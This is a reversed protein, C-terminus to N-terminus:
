TGPPPPNYGPPNPLWNITWGKTNQLYDLDGVLGGNNSASLFSPVYISGSDACNMFVHNGFASNGISWPNNLNPLYVYKLNGCDSFAYSYILTAKEFSASIMSGCYQFASNEITDVKPFNIKTFGNQYLFAGQEIYQLNPFNLSKLSSTFVMYSNWHFADNEIYNVGPFSATALSYAYGDNSRFAEAGIRYCYGGDEYSKLSSTFDDSYFASNDIKYYQDISATINAGNEAYSLFTAPVSSEGSDALSKSELTEQTLYAAPGKISIGKDPIYNLNWGRNELYQLDGDLGGYNNYTYYIPFEITPDVTNSSSIANFFVGQNSPSGGLANSGSLSPLSIIPYPNSSDSGFNEFAGVSVTKASAFSASSLLSCSSFAYSGISTALDLIVTDLNTANKFANTSIIECKGRDEYKTINTNDQFASSSITYEISSSVIIDSGTIEFLNISSSLLKQSLQSQDISGSIGSIKFGDTINYTVNWGKGILYQLNADVGGANNTKYAIPVRIKGNNATNNTTFVVHSTPDGGLASSGSLGRLDIEKLAPTWDILNNDVYPLVPVELKVLYNQYQIASPGYSTLSPFSGTTLGANFSTFNYGGLYELKPLYAYLWNDGNTNSTGMYKLNPFSASVLSTGYLANDGLYELKPIDLHTITSYNEFCSDGLHILEPFSISSISTDEYRSGLFNNGIFEVKPLSLYDLPVHDWYAEEFASASIIRAKPLDIYNIKAYLFANQGIEELNPFSASVLLNSSGFGYTGIKKLRPFSASVLNYCSALSGYGIETVNPFSATAFTCGSFVSDDIKTCRGGDLYATILDTTIRWQNHLVYNTSSSIFADSGIKDFYTVTATYSTKNLFITQDFTSDVGLIIIGNSARNWSNQSGLNVSAVENSGLYLASIDLNSLSIGM